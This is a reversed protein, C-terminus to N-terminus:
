IHLQLYLQTTSTTTTTTTVERGRWFILELKGATAAAGRIM